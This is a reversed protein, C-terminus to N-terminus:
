KLAPKLVNLKGDVLGTIKLRLIDAMLPFVNINEFGRIKFNTKFAPGWAYFTAHMLRNAPDYGHTAAPLSRKSLSFVRPARAVLIIDGIRSFRDSKKRYHWREPTNDSLYVDYDKASSKLIKYSPLIDKAHRAYLHVLTLSNM